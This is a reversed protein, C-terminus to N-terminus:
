QKEATDVDAKQKARCMHAPFEKALWCCQESDLVEPELDVETYGDM